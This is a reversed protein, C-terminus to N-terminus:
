MVPSGDYARSATRRAKGSSLVRFSTPASVRMWFLFSGSTPGYSYLAGMIIRNQSRMSSLGTNVSASRRRMVFANALCNTSPM